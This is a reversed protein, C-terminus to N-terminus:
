KLMDQTPYFTKQKNIYTRNQM